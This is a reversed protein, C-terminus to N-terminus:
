RRPYIFTTWGNKVCLKVDIRCIVRIFRSQRMASETAVAADASGGTQGGNGSGLGGFGSLPSGPICKKINVNYTHGPPCGAARSLREEEEMAKRFNSKPPKAVRM